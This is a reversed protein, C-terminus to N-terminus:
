AMLTTLQTPRTIKRSAIAALFMLQKLQLQKNGAVRRRMEKEEPSWCSQISSRELNLDNCNRDNNM